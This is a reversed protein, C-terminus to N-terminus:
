LLLYADQHIDRHKAIFSIRDIKYRSLEDVLAVSRHRGGTCGVAITMFFRGDKYAKELSYTIFDVLKNWYEQVDNQEFLYHKIIKETGDLHRLAPVFYPNPLSRVDYVFNCNQPVGYKFGFSILHVVLKQEDSHVFFTRVIEKLQHTSLQDTELIVDAQQVLIQLLRSEHEIAEELPVHSGLPHKRRTEQFRKVLIPLAAALFFIKIKLSCSNKAQVIKNVLMTIDGGRIDIGLAVKQNNGHNQEISQFFPILLAVPLNDVCLFGNDELARLVTSKGAGSYGTVIIIESTLIRQQEVIM